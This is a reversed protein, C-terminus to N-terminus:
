KENDIIEIHELSFELCTLLLENRTRGTMEAVSDLNSLMEKPLRISIVTTDGNFKRRKLKLIPDKM